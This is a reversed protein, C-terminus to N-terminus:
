RVVLELAERDREQDREAHLVAEAEPQGAVARRDALGYSRPPRTATSRISPTRAPREGDTARGAGSPEVDRDQGRVLAIGTRPRRRSGASAVTASARDVIVFEDADVHQWPGAEGGPWRVRVEAATAAGLGFHLWGLQGSAHGGGVTLERRQTM